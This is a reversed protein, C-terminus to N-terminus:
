RADLSQKLRNSFPPSVQRLVAVFLTDRSVTSGHVLVVAQQIQQLSVPIVICDWSNQRNTWGYAGEEVLLCWWM